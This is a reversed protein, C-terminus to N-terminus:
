DKRQVASDETESILSDIFTDDAADFAPIAYQGEFWRGLDVDACRTSCFPRPSKGGPRAPAAAVEGCTPCKLSKIGLDTSKGKYKLGNSGNRAGRNM